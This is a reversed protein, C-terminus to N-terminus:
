VDDDVPTELVPLPKKFAEARIKAEIEKAKGPHEKLFV